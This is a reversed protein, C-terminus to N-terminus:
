SRNYPREGGLGGALRKASPVNGHGRWGDLRNSSEVKIVEAGLFALIRGTMPGAWATTFDLVRLGTLPGTQREASRVGKLSDNRALPQLGRPGSDMHPRGGAQLFLHLTHLASRTAI